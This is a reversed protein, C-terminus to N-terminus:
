GARDKSGALQGCAASIDTGKERRLFAKIGKDVFIKQFELAKERETPRFETDGANNYPILNIKYKIGKLFDLTRRADAISDNLGQFLIYEYTIFRGTKKNYYLSVAKIDRLGYKATYPVLKRRLGEDATILSIALNVAPGNDALEKIGPVIGVTSLTMRSFSMCRGRKEGMIMIARRLNEWNCLPEGMGMFVINDMKRGTHKEVAYIQGIIEGSELNRRLGLRATACFLCGCRCGAQSSVCVTFRGKNNLFVSEVAEGDEMEFLFKMTDDLKSKRINAPEPYDQVYKYKLFEALEGSINKMDDFRAAKKKHLWEFVQKARYKPFGAAKLEEELEEFPIGLINKKLLGKEKASNENSGNYKAGSM